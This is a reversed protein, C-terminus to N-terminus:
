ARKQQDARVGGTKRGAIQDLENPGGILFIRRKKLISSLFHNGGAVKSAFETSTYRTFNVARGLREQLPHFAFSLDASSANGVVILDIDSESRERGEAVSGHIFAVHIKRVFPTLAARLPDAIGVTKILIAELEGLIPCAPDPSYYVRNGNARRSLIGAQTLKALSRQLSSPGVGLQAALDSLYWDREPRLVTAALVGQMMPTLLPALIPSSKRM